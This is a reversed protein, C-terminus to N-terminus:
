RAVIPERRQYRVGGPGTADIMVIWAGPDLPANAAFGTATPVPSLARDTRASTPRGVVVALSTPRVPAGAADTLDLRLIGDAHAVALSWGLAAQARRDADFSQSAVYSNPVVLGSCTGVAVFALTLNVALVIGFAGLAIALVKRGTLPRPEIVAQYGAYTDSQLLSGQLTEARGTSEQGSAPTM